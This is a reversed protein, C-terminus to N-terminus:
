VNHSPLPQEFKKSFHVPIWIVTKIELREILKGHCQRKGIREWKESELLLLPNTQHSGFKGKGTM